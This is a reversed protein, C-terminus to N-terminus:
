KMFLKIQKSKIKIISELVFFSQIMRIQLIKHALM